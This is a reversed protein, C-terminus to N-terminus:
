NGFHYRLGLTPSLSSVDFTIRNNKDDDVDKNPDISQFEFGRISLDVGWHETFFYEFGPSINFTIQSSKIDGAGTDTKGSGFTLGAQAFFAFKENSTFKYYRAFPGIAFSTAKTDTAGNDSKASTLTLLGGIAFNDMIFYGFSPSFTTSSNDNDSDPYSNSFLRLSGGVMMNGSSTQGNAIFVSVFLCVLFITIKKM